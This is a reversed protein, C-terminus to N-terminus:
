AKLAARLDGVNWATIRPSFKKPAPIRHSKVSRWVTATSCAFLEKVVALRVYAANPLTDFNSAASVSSPDSQRQSAACLAARDVPPLAQPLDSAAEVTKFNNKM